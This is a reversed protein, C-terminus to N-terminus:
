ATPHGRRRFLRDLALPGPGGLVLCLCMVILVVNYEYGQKQIDFGNPLHVTYIAGAMIAIIGLAAVRTLLGVALAGGGLLEGWAVAMQAPVPLNPNWAAGWQREPGGVLQWGHFLFVAALGLRLLLPSL